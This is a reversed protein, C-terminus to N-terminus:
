FPPMDGPPTAGVGAPQPSPAPMDWPDGNSRPKARGSKTVKATAWTLSPGVDDLEVVIRERPEGSEKDNWRQTSITGTAVVRDGKYLSEAINEALGRWATCAWFTTEGDAWKDTAKDFRRPTVAIALRAYAVGSATFGIEPDRTLNGTITTHTANNTM